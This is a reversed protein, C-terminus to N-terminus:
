YNIKTINVMLDVSLEELNSLIEANIPLEKLQNNRLILRKLKKLNSLEVPIEKLRNHRISLDTLNSLNGLEKPIKELLNNNLNLRQLRYLNGIEKPLEKLLNSYLNLDTLQTLYGIDKPIETLNMQCLYLFSYDNLKYLEKFIPILISADKLKCNLIIGKTNFLDDLSYKFNLSGLLEKLKNRSLLKLYEEYIKPRNMLDRFKFLSTLYWDLKSNMLFELDEYDLYSIIMSILENPLEIHSTINEM